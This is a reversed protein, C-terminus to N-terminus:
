FRGISPTQLWLLGAQMRMSITNSGDEFHQVALSSLQCAPLPEQVSGKACSVSSRGMHLIARGPSDVRIVVAKVDPNVRAKVLQECIVTSAIEQARAPMAQHGSVPRQCANSSSVPFLM